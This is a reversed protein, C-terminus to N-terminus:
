AGVGRFFIDMIRTVIDHPMSVGCLWLHVRQDVMGNIAYTADDLDLDARIEGTEVGRQLLRRVMSLHLDRISEFDFDPAGEEPQLEARMLLRMEMPHDELHVLFAKLGRELQRRVDGQAELSDAVLATLLSTENQLAELYLAEKNTFHYYLAPKTCGCAEVVQRISTAQYGRQAFFGAAVRLIRERLGTGLRPPDAVKEISADSM